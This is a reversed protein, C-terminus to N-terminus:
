LGTLVEAPFAARLSAGIPMLFRVIAKRGVNREAASWCLILLGEMLLIGAKPWSIYPFATQLSEDEEESFRASEAIKGVTLIEADKEM